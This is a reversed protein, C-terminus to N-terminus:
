SAAVAEPVERRARVRGLSGHRLIYQIVDKERYLLTKDVRAIPKLAGLQRLRFLYDRTTGMRECTQDMTLYGTVPVQPLDDVLPVGRM